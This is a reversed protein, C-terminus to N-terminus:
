CNIILIEATHNKHLTLQLQAKVAWHAAFPMRQGRLLLRYGTRSGSYDTASINLLMLLKDSVDGEVLADQKEKFGARCRQPHRSAAPLDLLDNTSKKAPLSSM